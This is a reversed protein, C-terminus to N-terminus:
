ILKVSGVLQQRCNTARKKVQELIGKFEPLNSVEIQLTGTSINTKEDDRTYYLGQM